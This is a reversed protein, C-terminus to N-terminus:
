VFHIQDLQHQLGYEPQDYIPDDVREDSQYAKKFANVAAGVAALGLLGSGGCGFIATAYLHAGSWSGHPDSDSTTLKWEHAAKGSHYSAYFFASAAILAFFGFALLTTNSWKTQADEGHAAALPRELSTNISM